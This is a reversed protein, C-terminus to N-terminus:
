QPKGYKKVGLKKCIRDFETKFKKYNKTRDIKEKKGLLKKFNEPLPKLDRDFMPQLDVVPDGTLNEYKVVHDWECCDYMNFLQRQENIYSYVVWWHDDTYTFEVDSYDYGQWTKYMGTEQAFFKSLIRDELDQRYLFVRKINQGSFNLFNWFRSHPIADMQSPFVKAVIPNTCTEICDMTNRNTHRTTWFNERKDPNKRNRVLKGSICQIDGEKFGPHFCEALYTTDKDYRLMFNKLNAFYYSSGSRPTTIGIVKLPRM